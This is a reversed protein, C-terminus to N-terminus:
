PEQGWVLTDKHYLTVRDWDAYSTKSADFSYDNTENYSPYGEGNFRAQVDGSSGRSVLTGAGALFGIELYSDANPRATALKETRRTINGCGILAYDCHSVQTATSDATYWYRMKFESLPVDAGGNSVVRLYPQAQGNTANADGCAYQVRWPSRCLGGTCLNSACDAAASCRQNIDCKRACSGGCDVDSESGNQMRDSCSVSQCSGGSCLGSQCDANGGCRQGAACKPCTAGGCDTDTELGNRTADTCAPAQCSVNCVASMCDAPAGCKAGNPCKNCTGGCDADTESGNKVGDSCTASQCKANCVGSQCDPAAACILGNACKACVGGGCDVDTEAGNRITDGCKPAQCLGGTCIRSQCDGTVACVKGDACAACNSGGCDLDTETGNKVGDACGAPQCFSMTCVGNECDGPLGCSQGIKCKPCGGGCDPDTEAGNKAGDTCSAAPEGGRGGQSMGGGGGGGGAGGGPLDLRPGLDRGGGDRGQQGRVSEAGGCAIAGASALAAALLARRGPTLLAEPVRVFAAILECPHGIKASGGGHKM